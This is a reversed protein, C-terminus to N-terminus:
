PEPDIAVRGALALLITASAWRLMRGARPRQSLIEGVKGSFWGVTLDIPLNIAVFTIGLVVVQLVYPKAPDLFQPLFALFFVYVKPNLLDTVMGQMFLAGIPVRATRIAQTPYEVPRYVTRIALYVLYIAGAYRLAILATGSERILAALGAAVLSVHITAGANLGAASALAAPRGQAIGRGVVYLIDPGPIVAILASATAFLWLNNPV